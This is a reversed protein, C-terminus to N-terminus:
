RLRREREERGQCEVCLKVGPYARRREDPIREGCGGGECWKASYREWDAANCAPMMAAQAALAQERQWQELAQARDFEDTM